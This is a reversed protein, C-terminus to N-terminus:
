KPTFTAQGDSTFAAPAKNDVQQVTPSYIAGENGAADVSTAEIVSTGPIFDVDIAQCVTKLNPAVGTFAGFTASTVLTRTAGNRIYLKGIKSDFVETQPPTAMDQGNHNLPVRLTGLM